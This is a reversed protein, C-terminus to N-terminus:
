INKKNFMCKCGNIIEELKFEEKIPIIWTTTYKKVLKKSTHQHFLKKSEEAELLQYQISAGDHTRYRIGNYEKNLEQYSVITFTDEDAKKVFHIGGARGGYGHEGLGKESTVCFKSLRDIDDNSLGKDDGSIILKNVKKNICLTSTNHTMSGIVENFAEVDNEFPAKNVIKCFGDPDPKVDSYNSCM